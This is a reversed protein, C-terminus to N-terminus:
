PRARYHKRPVEEIYAAHARSHAVICLTLRTDLTVRIFRLDTNGHIEIAGTFEVAIGTQRKKVVHEILDRSM